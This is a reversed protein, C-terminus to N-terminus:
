VTLILRRSISKQEDSPTGTRKFLKHTQNGFDNKLPYHYRFDRLLSFLPESYLKMNLLLQESKQLTPTFLTNQGRAEVPLRKQMPHIVVTAYNKLFYLRHIFIAPLLKLCFGGPAGLSLKRFIDTRFVTQSRSNESCKHYFRKQFITYNGM